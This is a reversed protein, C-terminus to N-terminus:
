RSLYYGARTDLASLLRANVPVYFRVPTHARSSRFHFPLYIPVYTPLYYSSPLFSPLVSRPARFPLVLSAINEETSHAARCISKGRIFRLTRPSPASDDHRGSVPTEFSRCQLSLEPRELPDHGLSLLAITSTEFRISM